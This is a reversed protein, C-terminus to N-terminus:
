AATLIRSLPASTSRVPNQPGFAKLVNFAAPTFTALSAVPVTFSATFDNRAPFSVKASLAFTSPLQYYNVFELLNVRVTCPVHHSSSIFQDGCARHKENKHGM